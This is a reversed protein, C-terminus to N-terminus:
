KRMVDIKYNGVTGGGLVAATVDNTKRMSAAKSAKKKIEFEADVLETQVFGEDADAFEEVSLAVALANDENARGADEKTAYTAKAWARGDTTAGFYM